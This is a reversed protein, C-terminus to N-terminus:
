SGCDIFVALYIYSYIVINNSGLNVALSNVGPNINFHFPRSNNSNKELRNIGYFLWSNNVQLGNFNILDDNTTRVTNNRFTSGNFDNMLQTSRAILIDFGVYSINFTFGSLLSVTRCNIANSASEIYCEVKLSIRQDDSGSFMGMGWRSKMDVTSSIDYGNLMTMLSDNGAVVSYPTTIPYYADSDNYM